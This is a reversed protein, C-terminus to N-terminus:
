RHTVPIPQKVKTSFIFEPILHHSRRNRTPDKHGIGMLLMPEQDLKLLDKIGQGDFCACCGTSYGMMAATLNLYGAAIGVAMEADRKLAENEVTDTGARIAETEESRYIDGELNAVFDNRELVVVLNAMIQSNTETQLEASRSNHRTLEHLANILVRDTIFHARYFAVNQKSPCETVAQELLNM